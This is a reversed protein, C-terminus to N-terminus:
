AYPNQSGVGRQRTNNPLLEALPSRHRLVNPPRGPVTRGLISVPEIEVRAQRPGLDHQRRLRVGHLRNADPCGRAATDLHNLIAARNAWDRIRSDGLGILRKGKVPGAIRSGVPEAHVHAVIATFQQEDTIRDIYVERLVVM